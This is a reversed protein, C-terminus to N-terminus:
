FGAEIKRVVASLTENYPANLGMEASVVPVMGNIADIESKRKALHDLRMSPSADPMNRAFKMAYDDPDDFSFNIGKAKGAQYAERMCGLAINLRDQNDLIGGIPCDFVTCPASLFVNCIYKEWILQHIDGFANANFGAEQWVAEVAKLRDTLGGEMEGLRVQRMSNHHAHGPGKMSAGFGEAVGLLVNETSIFQAIREGAGLGNQITLILSDKSMIKSIEQAAAGVGDAKTAIIYLDCLGADAINTTANLNSVTRDGSAGEVRLGTRNIEEVHAQWTDVAWVENGADSLLAAYVSGMAGTGAIAIKM